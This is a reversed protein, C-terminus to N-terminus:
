KTAMALVCTIQVTYLLLVYMCVAFFKLLNCPITHPLFSAVNPLSDGYGHFNKDEFNEQRIFTDLRTQNFIERNM